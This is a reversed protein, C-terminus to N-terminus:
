FDSVGLEDEFSPANFQPPASFKASAQFQPAPKPAPPPVPAGRAPAPAPAPAARPPGQGPRREEQQIMRFVASQNWDRDGEKAPKAQSPASAPAQPKASDVPFLLNSQIDRIIKIFSKMNRFVNAQTEFWKHWWQHIESYSKRM